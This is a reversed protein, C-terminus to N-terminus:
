AYGQSTVEWRHNKENYQVSWHWFSCYGNFYNNFISYFTSRFQIIECERAYYDLTNGEDYDVTLLVCGYKNNWFDDKVAQAAKEIDEMSPKNKIKKNKLETKASASDRVNNYNITSFWTNGKLLFCYCLMFCLLFVAIFISSKIIKKKRRSKEMREVNQWIESMKNDYEQKENEINKLALNLDRNCDECTACHNIIFDESEKSATRDTYLPILDKVINCEKNM